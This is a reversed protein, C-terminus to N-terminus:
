TRTSRGRHSRGNSGRASDPRDDDPVGLLDAIVLATFPEAFEHIFECSGRDLFEKLQPRRPAM